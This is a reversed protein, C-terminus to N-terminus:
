PAAVVFLQNIGLSPMGGVVGSFSTGTSSITGYFTPKSGPPPNSITLQGQVGPTLVGSFSLNAINGGYLLDVAMTGVVNYTSGQLKTTLTLYECWTKDVCYQGVMTESSPLIIPQPIPTYTPTVIPPQPHLTAVVMVPVVNCYMFNEVVLMSSPAGLVGTLTGVMPSQAPLGAASGPSVPMAWSTVAPPTLAGGSAAGGPAIFGTGGVVTASCSPNGDYISGTFTAPTGDVVTLTVTIGLAMDKGTYIWRNPTQAFLPSLNSAGWLLALMFAARASRLLRQFSNFTHANKLRKRRNQLACKASELLIRADGVSDGPICVGARRCLFSTQSASVPSCPSSPKELDKASLEDTEMKRRRQDNM